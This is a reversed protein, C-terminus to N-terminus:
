AAWRRMALSPQLQGRGGGSYSGWGRLLTDPCLGESAAKM